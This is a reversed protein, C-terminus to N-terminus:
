LYVYTTHSSCATNILIPKCKVTTARQFLFPAHTAFEQTFRNAPWNSTWELSSSRSYLCLCDLSSAAATAAASSHQLPVCASCRGRQRFEISLRNNICSLASSIMMKGALSVRQGYGNLSQPGILVLWVAIPNRIWWRCQLQTLICTLILM